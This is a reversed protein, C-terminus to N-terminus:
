PIINFLFLFLLITNNYFYWKSPLVHFSTFFGQNRKYNGTGNNKTDKTKCSECAVGIFKTAYSKSFGLVARIHHSNLCGCYIIFISHFIIHLSRICIMQIENHSCPFRIYCASIWNIFCVPYCIIKIILKKKGIIAVISVM